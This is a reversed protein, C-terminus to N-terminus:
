LTARHRKLVADATEGEPVHVVATGNVCHRTGTPPPGDPFVHGIHGDCRACRMETRVMGHSTDRIYRLAGEAVEDSFSPWGCGSHFKHTADYLTNGCGACAYVGGADADDDLYRGSGPAETGSRRLVHFEAPSLLGRWDDDTLRDPETIEGHLTAPDM